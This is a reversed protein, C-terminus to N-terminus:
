LDRWPETKRSAGSGIQFGGEKQGDRAHLEDGPLALRLIDERDMQRWDEPSITKAYAHCIRTEALGV